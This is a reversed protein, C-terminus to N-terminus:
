GVASPSTLGDEHHLPDGPNLDELTAGATEPYAVLILVVVVLPAFALLGIAPAVSGFTSSLTGGAVLGVVGGGAALVTLCGGARARLSTPFLEAGYVALAPGVGYSIVSGLTNWVWLGVGSSTYHLITVVAGLGVGTAAVPRRGWTDALRGGILTGLGGITGSLQELLSIRTASLHRETHLFENQFQSAPSTFIALLLAGAGLILLRRRLAPTLHGRWRRPLHAPLSDPHNPRRAPTSDLWRRSEPLRRVCVLVAPVGLLSIAYPWRWGNHGLDALPLAVLTLGSGFGFSMGIVGVAWARSGPPMEEAAMVAIIVLSAGVLSAAALQFATLVVLSPAAAGLSSTIAAGILTGVLVPRRGRRDALHLLALAGVAGAEVVGLAVGQGSKGVHFDGAAYTMTDALLDALYGVVMTLLCLTALVVASRRPLRVPPAWWPFRRHDGIRALHRRVPLAFLWSVGPLGVRLSVTQTVDVQGDPRPRVTVERQYCELPGEAQEFSITWPRSPAGSSGLQHEAVVGQRPGLVDDLDAAALM